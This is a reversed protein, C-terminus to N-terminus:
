SKNEILAPEKKRPKFPSYSKMYYKLLKSFIIKARDKEEKTLGKFMKSRKIALNHIVNGILDYVTKSDSFFTFVIKCALEKDENSMHSLWKTIAEEHNKSFATRDKIILFEPKSNKIKWTFPDHGGLLLGTAFVVKCKDIKNYIVGVIDNSTLFKQFKTKVGKYNPFSELDFKTGPGDFSYAKILKHNYEKDMNVAVHFSLNGGKSHGGLYFNNTIYKVSDNFYSIARLQSPFADKYIMSFDEEWGLLTIDTGRYSIYVDKNPFIITIAFFQEKFEGKLFVNVANGIKLDEYRKSNKMLRLLTRNQKYDVSGYYFSKPNKVELNKLKIFKGKPAVEDFNIYAIESFILSDIDNFPLEEFSKNKYKKVYGIINM